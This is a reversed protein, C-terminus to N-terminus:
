LHIHFIYNNLLRIELETCFSQTYNLIFELNIKMVKDKINAHALACLIISPGHGDYSAIVVNLAVLTFQSISKDIVSNNSNLKKGKMTEVTSPLKTHIKGNRHLLQLYHLSHTMLSCM